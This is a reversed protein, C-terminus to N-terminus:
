TVGKYRLSQKLSGAVQLMLHIELPTADAYVIAVEKLLEPKSHTLSDYLLDNMTVNLANAINLLAPLSVKTKGNCIHSMHQPSIASLEALRDVTLKQSQRITNVRIGLAHYDLEM